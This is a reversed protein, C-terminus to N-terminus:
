LRGFFVIVQDLLPFISAAREDARFEKAKAVMTAQFKHNSRIFAAEAYMYTFLRHIRNLRKKTDPGLADIAALHKRVALMQKRWPGTVPPQCVTCCHTRYARGRLSRWECGCIPPCGISICTACTQVKRDANWVCDCEIWYPEEQEQEEEQDYYSDWEEAERKSEYYNDLDESSSRYRRMTHSRRRTFNGCFHHM